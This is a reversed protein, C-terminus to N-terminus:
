GLLFEINEGLFQKSKASVEEPNGTTLYTRKGTQEIRSTIEPHCSLYDKLSQAVISPQHYLQVGAPLASAIIDAILEYHTCGLLVADLRQGKSLSLTFGRVCTIAEQRVQEGNAGQAEILGALNNCVHQIVTINKNRTHIEHEYEGSEVTSKTALVGVTILEQVSTIQEITPVVIGLLKRM